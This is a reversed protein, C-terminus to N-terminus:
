GVARVSFFSVSILLAAYAVFKCWIPMRKFNLLNPLLLWGTVYFRASAQLTTCVFATIGTLWWIAGNDLNEGVSDQGAITRVDIVLVAVLVPFAALAVARSLREAKSQPQSSLSM